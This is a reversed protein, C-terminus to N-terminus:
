LSSPFFPSNVLLIVVSSGRIITYILHRNVPIDQKLRLVAVVITSHLQRLAAPTLCPLFLYLPDVFLRRFAVAQVRMPSVVGM